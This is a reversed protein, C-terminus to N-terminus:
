AADDAEEMGKITITIKKKRDKHVIGVPVQGNEEVYKKLEASAIKYKTDATVVQPAMQMLDQLHSDDLQYESGFYRYGIRVNDGHLSSFNENIALGAAEIRVSADDVAQKVLREIEKLRLLTAEAKPSLFIKDAQDVLEGLEMTDVTLIM